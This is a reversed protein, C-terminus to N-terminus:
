DTIHGSRGAPGPGSSTNAHLALLQGRAAECWEIWSPQIKEPRDEDYNRLDVILEDVYWIASTSDSDLFDPPIPLDGDQTEEEGFLFLVLGEPIPPLATESEDYVVSTTGDRANAVNKM